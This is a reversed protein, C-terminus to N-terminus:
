SNTGSHAHHPGGGGRRKPAAVGLHMHQCLKFPPCLSPSHSHPHPRLYAERSTVWACHQRLSLPRTNPPPHGKHVSSLHVPSATVGGHPMDHQMSCAAHTYHLIPQAQHAAHHAEALPLLVLTICCGGLTVLVRSHSRRGLNAHRLAQECCEGRLCRENM